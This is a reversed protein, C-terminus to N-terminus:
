TDCEDHKNIMMYKLSKMLVSIVRHMSGCKFVVM